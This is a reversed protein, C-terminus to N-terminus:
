NLLRYTSNKNELTQGTSAVSGDRCSTPDSPRCPGPRIYALARPRKHSLSGSPPSCCPTRCALGARGRLHTNTLKDAVTHFFISM